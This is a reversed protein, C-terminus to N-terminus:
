KGDWQKLGLEAPNRNRNAATVKKGSSDRALGGNERRNRAVSDNKEFDASAVGRSGKDGAIAVKEKALMEARFAPDLYLGEQKNPNMTKKSKAFAPAAPSLLAAAGARLALRRPMVNLASGCALVLVLVLVLLRM